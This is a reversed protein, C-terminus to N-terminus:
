AAIVRVHGDQGYKIIRKDRTMLTLAEVRATAIIIRDAPDSHLDGPLLTSEISIEPKLPILEVGPQSLAERVWDQIPTRLTLRRKDLMVALEWISIAPICLRGQKGAEDIIKVASTGLEPSQNNLWIWIHTDLLLGDNNPM